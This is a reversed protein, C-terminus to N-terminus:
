SSLQVGFGGKQIYFVNSKREVVRRRITYLTFGLININCSQNLDRLHYSIYLALSYSPVVNTYIYLTHTHIHIHYIYIYIYIHIYIKIYIWICINIYTYIHIHLSRHRPIVHTPYVCLICGYFLSLFTLYINIYVYM